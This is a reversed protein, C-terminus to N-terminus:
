GRPLKPSLAANKTIAPAGAGGAAAAADRVAGTDPILALMPWVALQLERVADFLEVIVDTQLQQVPDASRGSRLQRVKASLSPSNLRAEVRVLNSHLEAISSTIPIPM